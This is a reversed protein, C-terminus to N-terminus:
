IVLILKKSARTVATYLWKRFFTMDGMREVFVIVKDYQSGQSLHCTIAYGFEFLEGNHPMKKILEKYSRSGNFFKTNLPISEFTGDLFDPKFDINITDSTKSEFDIDIVNGVLGNILNIGDVQLIWNNKRCILKDGIMLEPLKPLDIGRQKFYLERIKASLIDRTVNRGCIVIDSKTLSEEYFNLFDKQKIILLKDDYVGPILNLYDCKIIDQSLKLIPNKAAQRMVETLIYDPKKLFVPNGIVPPLQNLDGLAIIPLGYSKIDNAIKENVMPAEDIVILKISSELNPKKIFRIEKLIRGESIIVKNEKDLKPVELPVYISSHITRAMVGSKTMQMAAKGILAMFLVNELHIDHLCDILTKILTTKGTGAAGSIEFVQKTGDYTKWWTLLKELCESQGQNLEM